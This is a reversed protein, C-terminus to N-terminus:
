NQWDVRRGKKEIGLVLCDVQINSSRGYYMECVKFAWSRKWGGRLTNRKVRDKGKDFRTINM